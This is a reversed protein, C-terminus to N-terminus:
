DPPNQAEYAQLQRCFNALEENLQDVDVGEPAPPIPGLPLSPNEAAREYQLARRRYYGDKDGQWEKMTFFIARDRYDSKRRLKWGVFAAVVACVAVGILLSKLSFRLLRM